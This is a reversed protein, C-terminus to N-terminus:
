ALAANNQQAAGGLHRDSFRPSAMSDRNHLQGPGRRISADQRPKILSWSYKEPALVAFEFHGRTALADKETHIFDLAIRWVDSSM